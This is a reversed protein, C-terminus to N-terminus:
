TGREIRGVAFRKWCEGERFSLPYPPSADKAKKFVGKLGRVLARNFDM